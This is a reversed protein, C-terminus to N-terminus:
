PNGDNFLKMDFNSPTVVYRNGEKNIIKFINKSWKDLRSKQGMTNKEIQNM